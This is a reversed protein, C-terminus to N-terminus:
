AVAIEIEMAKQHDRLAAAASDVESLRREMLSTAGAETHRVRRLEDAAVQAASKPKYKTPYYQLSYFLTPPYLIVVNYLYLTYQAILINYLYTDSCFHLHIQIQIGIHRRVCRSIRQM